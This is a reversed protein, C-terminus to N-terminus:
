NAFITGMPIHVYKYQTSHDRLEKLYVQNFGQENCELPSSILWSQKFSFNSTYRIFQQADLDTGLIQKTEISNTTQDNM